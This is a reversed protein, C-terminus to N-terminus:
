RKWSPKRGMATLSAAQARRTLRDVVDGEGNLAFSQGGLNLVVPRGTPGAPAVALGGDAFRPISFPPTMMDDVLGGMSFGGFKPLKLSNLARMFDVGYYRVAAARQVFEGDSLRAPISDSTPSGPGRIYGGGAAQVEGGATGGGKNGMAAAIKKIYEWAQRAKEIVANFVEVVTGLWTGKLYTAIANFAEFAKTKAWEWADFVAKKFGEWLAIWFEATFLQAFFEVLANFGTKIYEWAALAGSKIGEWLSVFFGAIADRATKSTAVLLILGAVIVVLLAPVFGIAAALLGFAAVLVQVVGLVLKFAGVAVAWIAPIGSFLKVLGALAPFLAGIVAVLKVVVIAIAAFAAVVILHEKTINTGFVANFKKLLEDLLKGIFTFVPGLIAALANFAAVLGDRILTSIDRIAPQFQALKEALFDMADAFPQLLPGAFANRLGAVASQLKTLSDGFKDARDATEKDFVVGMREAEATLNAIGARGENLFPILKAGIRKGFIEAAIASKRAGDPMKAFQEAIDGLLKETNVQGNIKTFSVGLSQVAARTKAAESTTGEAADNLAVFLKASQSAEVGSQKFAYALRGYEKVGLGASMAAERQEEGQRATQRTAEFIAAGVLAFGKAAAGLDKGLQVATDAVGRLSAGFKKAEAETTKLKERFDSLGTGLGKSGEQLTKFADQGAEGLSKLGARVEEGGEIEIRTKISAM